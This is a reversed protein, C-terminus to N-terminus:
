LTGLDPIFPFVAQLPFSPSFPDIKKKFIGRPPPPNGPPHLASPGQLTNAAFQPIKPPPFKKRKPASVDVLIEHTKLYLPFFKPWLSTLYVLRMELLRVLTNASQSAMARLLM